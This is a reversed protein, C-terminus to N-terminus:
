EVLKMSLLRLKFCQLSPLYTEKSNFQDEALPFVAYQSLIPFVEFIAFCRKHYISISDRFTTWPLSLFLISSTCLLYRNFFCSRCLRSSHSTPSFLIKTPRRRNGYNSQTMVPICSACTLVDSTDILYICVKPKTNNMKLPWPFNRTFQIILLKMLSHLMNCKQLAPFVSIHILSWIDRGDSIYILSVIRSTVILELLVCPMPFSPNFQIEHHLFNSFKPMETAYLKQIKQQAVITASLEIETCLQLVLTQIYTSCNIQDNMPLFVEIRMLSLSDLKKVTASLTPLHNELLAILILQSSAWSSTEFDM